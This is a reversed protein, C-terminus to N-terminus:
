QIIKKCECFTKQMHTAYEENWESGFIQRSFGLGENKCKEKCYSYPNSILTSTSQKSQFKHSDNEKLEEIEQDHIKHGEFVIIFIFCIILFILYLTIKIGM